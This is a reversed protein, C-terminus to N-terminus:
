FIKSPAYHMSHNFMFADVLYVSTEYGISMLEHPDKDSRQFNQPYQANMEWLECSVSIRERIICNEILLKLFVNRIQPICYTIYIHIRIYLKNQPM